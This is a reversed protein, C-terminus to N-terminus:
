PKGAPGPSADYNLPVWRYGSAASQLRGLGPFAVHAAAVLQREHAVIAFLRERSARAARGDSDYQVTVEPQQLQLAAVHVLDGWIVISAGGGSIRYSTHGPTHGPTALVELGDSRATAADIPRLRGAARYPKLAEVAADFFSGLYDPAHAKESPSSWYDLDRSSAYVVANPYRMRGRDTIGGVHDKHLHTLYIAEVQEPRYGGARLHAEVQGCCEGYLSGAGADVLILRRGTNLLFANISGQVPAKLFERELGSKIAEADIGRMVTEVPFPHTGDSLATVEVTGVFTRYYGPAQFAAYPIPTATSSPASGEDPTAQAARFPGCVGLAMATVFAMGMARHLLQNLSVQM